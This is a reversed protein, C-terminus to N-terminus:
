QSKYIAQSSPTVSPPTFGVPAPVIVTRLSNTGDPGPKFFETLMQPSVVLLDSASPTSSSNNPLISNTLAPINNTSLASAPSTQATAVNTDVSNTKALALEPSNTVAPRDMLVSPLAFSFTATALSFRLPSPGIRKLYVGDGRAQLAACAILMAVFAFKRSNLRGM